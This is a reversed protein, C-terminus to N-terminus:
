PLWEMQVNTLVVLSNQTNTIIIEFDNITEDVYVDFTILNIDQQINDIKFNKQKNTSYCQFMDGNLNDGEITLKYTGSKISKYPGYSVGGPNIYRKNDRDYGNNIYQGNFTYKYKGILAANYGAQELGTHPESLGIIYHDLQYYYLNYFFCDTSDFEKWIYITNNQLNELSTRIGDWVMQDTSRALYFRNLTKKQNLVLEGFCYLDDTGLYSIICLHEYKPENLLLEWGSDTFPSEYTTKISFRAHIDRMFSSADYIQLLLCTVLLANKFKVTCYKIDSCIAFVFLSYVIIWAVRGSSRFISWLKFVVPFSPWNFIVKEGVTIQPSAAVVFAILNILIACLIFPSSQIHLSQFNITVNLVAIFLLIIIGIGLYTFGEYQGDLIPLPKLIRGYSMSNFLANLNFSYKGLGDNASSLGSSFGGLIYITLGASLIYCILALIVTIASKKKLYQCISFGFLIIGCFLLYYIHISGCLFGLISWIIIQAKLSSFITDQYIYVLLAILIIWQAALATHNYMRHLVPFAICFFTSGIIVQLDNKMYKQLLKASIASNLTFCGIGWLGFYQFNQPLLPSLLKFFVAFIPISDTFIVSTEHPYILSNTMGVPFTWASYRYAVWGLYHQPLDGGEYLWDVYCPNLIHVGYILVFIFAGLLASITICRNNESLLMKM